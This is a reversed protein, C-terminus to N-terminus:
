SYVNYESYISNTYGIMFAQLNGSFRQKIFCDTSKSTGSMLPLGGNVDKPPSIINSPILVERVGYAPDNITISNPNTTAM